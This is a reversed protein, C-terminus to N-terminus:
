DRREPLPWSEDRGEWYKEASCAFHLSANRLRVCDDKDPQYSRSAGHCLQFGCIPNWICPRHLGCSVSSRENCKDNFGLFDPHSSVSIGRTPWANPGYLQLFDFYFYLVKTTLYKLAWSWSLVENEMSSVATGRSSVLNLFLTWGVGLRVTRSGAFWVCRAFHLRKGWPM